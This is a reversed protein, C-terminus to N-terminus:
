LSNMRTFQQSNSVVESSIITFPTGVALEKPPHLINLKLALQGTYKDKEPLIQLQGTHKSEGPLFELDRTGLHIVGEPLPSINLLIGPSARYNAEKFIEMGEKTDGVLETSPDVPIWKDDDMKFEVWAHAAPINAGIPSGSKFIAEGTDSRIINKIPNPDKSKTKGLDSANGLFAGELGAEKGLILMGISLPGCNAYGLEAANKLTSLQVFPMNNNERIANVREPYSAELDSLTKEYSYKIHSRLIEMVKRPRDRKAITKLQRAKKLMEELISSEEKSHAESISTIGKRLTIFLSLPEKKPELNVYPFFLEVNGENDTKTSGQDSDRVKTNPADEM